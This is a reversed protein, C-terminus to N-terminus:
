LNGSAKRWTAGCHLSDGGVAQTQSASHKVVAPASSSGVDYLSSSATTALNFCI